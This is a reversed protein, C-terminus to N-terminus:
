SPLPLLTSCGLQRSISHPVGSRGALLTCTYGPKLAWCCCQSNWFCLPSAIELGFLSLVTGIRAMKQMLLLLPVMVTTKDVPKQPL